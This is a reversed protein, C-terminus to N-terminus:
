HLVSTEAARFIRLFQDADEAAVLQGQLEPDSRFVMAFKRLYDRWTGYTDEAFIVMAVLNVIDGSDKWVVGDRYVGFTISLRPNRHTAGHAIAFGERLVVPQKEEAEKVRGLISSLELGHMRAHRAALQGLVDEKSFSGRNVFVHQGTLLNSIFPNQVYGYEPSQSRVVQEAFELLEGITSDSEFGKARRRLWEDCQWLSQLVSKVGDSAKFRNLGWTRITVSTGVEIQLDLIEKQLTYNNAPSMDFAFIGLSPVQFSLEVRCDFYKALLPIMPLSLNHLRDNITAVARCEEQPKDRINTLAGGGPDAAIDEVDPDEIRAFTEDILQALRVKSEVIDHSYNGLNEWAVRFFESAMIECSGSVQVIVEDGDEFGAVVLEMISKPDVADSPDVPEPEQPCVRYLLFSTKPFLKCLGTIYSAPRLHWTVPEKYNLTCRLQKM